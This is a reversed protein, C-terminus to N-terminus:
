SRAPALAGVSEYTPAVGILMSSGGMLVITTVLVFRRGVKDGLMGFVLGGIPRAAFGVGYVGFAAILAMAPNSQDFFLQNFVLATMLGYM